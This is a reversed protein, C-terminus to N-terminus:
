FTFKAFLRVERPDQFQNAQGYLPNKNNAVNGIRTLPDFGQFFSEDTVDVSTTSFDNVVNVPTDHDFLNLVNVGVQFGYRGSINFGHQVQLDTRKLTPTRGMDGRGYAFFPVGHYYFQTSNPTGSGIYQNLGLATGWPLAYTVQAKFVHPRDTALKGEVPNGQADFSNFLNDFYRNVNPSNRGNEDSSALGGYNGELSSYVYSAHAGWSSSFRKTVEFEFAQYDRKAKPLAPCSPCTPALIRTAVGFGPNATFYEESTSGDGHDVLVGVDEITRVLHKNVYRFGVAFLSSLEHQAGLTFEVSEMPKLDPEILDFNVARLNVNNVYRLGGTCTPPTAASTGVNTCNWKTWDPDEIAFNFWIWKDGGFSGRPMEMKTVDYYKGWSGFAKTRGTGFVDYAFGLRPALKDSYGFQIAYEPLGLAPDAYSPVKEEEARVGINLTLRNNMTTWSDQLFVGTNQSEVSGATKFVYVGVMGYTGRNQQTGFPGPTNWYTRFVHNQFGRDVENNLNALQVGAKIQHTGAFTPFWTADFDFSDRTYADKTIASNSTLTRFGAPRVIAPDIGPFVSPSGSAFWVYPDSPIGGQSLNDYYRGGKASFYWEPSAIFDAYGSFTWNERELTQGQYVAPNPNGRGNVGPLINKEEYGSNNGSAKFLFKSGLNGSLSGAWNQRVFEQNITSTSGNLFTVTRDTDRTSPSYAGFFWIRDRLIPGGLTVTPEVITEDDKNYTVYEHARANAASVQLTPRAKGGWENNIMQGGVSGRFDNTGTKTIVNIVGGIAGGFEAQYGASKVQIVDVFDTVVIKGQTGTQPNTTNVGDVVYVNESGSAGDISIGGSGGAGQKTEFNASAAQTIVTSFDRGKPLQEFEESSLETTTASSTVDVLPAEATVTVAEAVAAVRLTLDAKPTAGVRVEMNRIVGSELGALSATVTYTGPPVAPFRYNGQSDTQATLKVGKTSVADVTVGPLAAGTQDTVTGQISATQEQAALPLTGILLLLLVFRVSNRMM